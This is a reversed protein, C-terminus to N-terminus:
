QHHALFLPHEEGLVFPLTVRQYYDPFLELNNIVTELLHAQGAVVGPADAFAIATIHVHLHYYSPQYHLFLRLEDPKIGFKEKALSHATSQIRRLLPLHDPTLDRLSGLDNRMAIAVWYLCERSGDWKMDPLVVFGDPSKDHYLVRDAESTGQLINDVWQTREAPLSRIYPLTIRQYAEPTELIMRRTQAEYKRIHLETAPYIAKVRTDPKGLDVVGSGWSYINNETVDQLDRTKGALAAFDPDDYQAKEFTLIAPQGQVQGLIHTIKTRADHSLVREFQFQSVITELGM